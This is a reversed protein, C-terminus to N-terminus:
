IMNFNAGSSFAVSATILTTFGYGGRKKGMDISLRRYSLLHIGHVFQDHEVVIATALFAFATAAAATAAALHLIETDGLRWLSSKDSCIKKSCYM